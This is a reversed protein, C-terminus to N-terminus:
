RSHIGGCSPEQSPSHTDEKASSFAIRHIQWLSIHAAHARQQARLKVSEQFAHLRRELACQPFVRAARAARTRERQRLHGPARAAIKNGRVRPGARTQRVERARKVELFGAGHNGGLHKARLRALPHQIQAGRRPALGRPQGFACARQHGVFDFGPARFHQQRVQLAHARPVGGNGVFAGRAQGLRQRFREIRHEHVRRARALAHETAIRAGDGFPRLGAVQAALLALPFDEGAGRAQHPGAPPQHIGSAGKARQFILVVHLPEQAFERFKGRPIKGQGRQPTRM